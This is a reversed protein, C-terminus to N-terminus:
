RCQQIKKSRHVVNCQLTRNHKIEIQVNLGEGAEGECRLGNERVVESRRGAALGEIAWQLTVDRM